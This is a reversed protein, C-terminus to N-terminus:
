EKENSNRMFASADERCRKMMRNQVASLRHLSESIRNRFRDVEHLDDDILSRLGDVEQVYDAFDLLSKADPIHDGSRRAGAATSLERLFDEVAKLRSEEDGPATSVRELNLFAKAVGPISAWRNALIKAAARVYQFSTKRSLDGVGSAMTAVVPAKALPLVAANRSVVSTQQQGLSTKKGVGSSPQGSPTSKGPLKPVPTSAPPPAPKLTPKPSPKLVPAPAPKPVQKPVSKLAPKLAPKPLPAPTAKPTAKPAANLALKTGPKPIPKLVRKGGTASSVPNETRARKPPPADDDNSDDDNSSGSAESSVDVEGSSEDGSSDGEEGEEGEEGSDASNADDDSDDSEDDKRAGRMKTLFPNPKCIWKFFIDHLKLDSAHWVYSHAERLADKEVPAFSEATGHTPSFVSVVKERQLTQEFEKTPPFFLMTVPTPERRDQFVDIIEYAHILSEDCTSSDVVPLQQLGYFIRALDPPERACAPPPSGMQRSWAEHVEKTPKVFTLCELITNADEGVFTYAVNKNIYRGSTSSGALIIRTVNGRADVECVPIITRSKKLFAILPLIALRRGQAPANMTFGEADRLKEGMLDAYYKVMDDKADVRKQASPSHWLREQPTVVLLASLERRRHQKQSSSGVDNDVAEEDANNASKALKVQKPPNASKTPSESAVSVTPATSVNSATSATSATSAVSAAESDKVEDVAIRENTDAM